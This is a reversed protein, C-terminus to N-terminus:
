SVHLLKKQSYVRLNQSYVGFEQLIYHLKEHIFVYKKRVFEFYQLCSGSYLINLLFLHTLNLKEM